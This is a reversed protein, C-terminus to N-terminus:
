APLSVLAPCVMIHDSQRDCGVWFDAHGAIRFGHKAYFAVARPNETWVSLWLSGAGLTRYIAADHLRQFRTMAVAGVLILIGGVLTVAGVITVGTTVNDVVERISSVVDRVDIISVNPMARVVDRQLAGRAARCGM